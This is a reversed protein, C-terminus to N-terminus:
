GTQCKRIASITFSSKHKETLRIDNWSVSILPTQWVACTMQQLQSAIRLQRQSTAWAARRFSGDTKELSRVLEPIGAVYTAIVPRRLAMAEMIVVPLGEQFSPLVLARAKLIEDRVQESSIWGTIRVHDQLGLAHIRYEVDPLM